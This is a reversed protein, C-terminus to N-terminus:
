PYQQTWTQGGDATALIVPEFSVKTGNAETRTGVAWGRDADAFVIASTRNLQPIPIAPGWSQGGDKTGQISSAGTGQCAACEVVFYVTNPDVLSLPGPEAGRDPVQLQPFGYAIAPEWRTGGDVTRYLAYKEQFAAVGDGFLVWAVNKGSCWVGASNLQRLAPPATFAAVWTRAGDNTRFVQGETTAAWGNDADSFCLSTVKPLPPLPTWNRGGDTTEVLQSHYEYGSIARGINGDFFNISALPEAAEYVPQWTTGGDSTRLLTFSSKNGELSAAAWGIRASVFDLEQIIGEDGSHQQTWTRGGDTTALIVGQGSSLLGGIWGIKDNVFFISDFWTAYTPEATTSATASPTPSPSPTSSPTRTTTPSGGSGGCAVVATAAALAGVLALLKTKKSYLM